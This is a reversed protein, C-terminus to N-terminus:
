FYVMYDIEPFICDKKQIAKLFEVDIKNEKIQEYLKTFRGIHDKIRKKAYDVMTGNTIIFLWDSSQALLLERACQNLAKKRISNKENPFLQALEVMRDGAIHLHKHVYDNTGNLWVESYGNAGWSSICPSAQQMEPFKDIYESPTILKFNCKDYYIKKFLIYLWYPGEYWWHGYLEADYPCVVIPKAPSMINSLEDIQNIRSDLFHGAQKEASDKAWQINYYDKFDSKSTIRYYKIGTNVRVGNKAIYPKIYDYDADYGIDRYFERYNFDGPYGCVSSWVQRSSDIDRGFAVIGNPSVIPAFTGFVPTPDAYLIGHSETIIYEIGFEKLYKDAQPIYGCEPLWIGRPNKGFYKKYTEVGVAIQAKVTKENVYLIPFYGHTAGCTIIELVGIDQFHKFANILNCNFVDKFIHLDNSYRELYYKSLQNLRNDYNTRKVEKAALEIHKKLYKIYRRQLLKNDFMNLLPPTLSMTIRFDVKEEELKQFNLLLPIYTESIAEFLWEEELYDESEPHHIFPLHAHLIFSVYGKTNDM